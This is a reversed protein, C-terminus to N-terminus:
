MTDTYVVTATLLTHPLTFAFYKLNLYLGIPMSIFSLWKIYKLNLNYRSDIFLL